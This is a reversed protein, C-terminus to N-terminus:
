GERELLELGEKIITDVEIKSVCAYTCLAFDESACELLGFEEMKEIDQAMCAKVLFTTYVDLAVLPDYVHTAVIARPEGNVKTNMKFVKRVAPPILCSVFLRTFSHKNAGPELWGFIEKGHGEPIVTITSDYFSAYGEKPVQTGSLVGGNIYRLEGEEVNGQTLSEISAGLRTKYYKRNQVSSGGVAVLREVPVKGELLFKGLLALHEAEIYWIHEGKHLRDLYQIHTSVNGAPHAGQFQHIEVDQAGAIAPAVQEVTGDYCLFVKGETLKNLANIGAQFNKEQGQLLLQKDACNPETDMAHIFISKPVVSPDAVRSFPRQQLYLWMGSSLLQEVLDGREAKKVSDLSFTSFTEYEEDTSKEIVVELLKRKEGRKVEVVTGGAPSTFRIDPNVRSTLIPSGVKVSDGEKVELKFKFGGFDPPQIAFKSSPAANAIEASPMGDIPLTRGKKIKFLAM